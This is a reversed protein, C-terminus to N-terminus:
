HSEMPVRYVCIVNGDRDGAYLYGTQCEEFCSIPIAWPKDLAVKKLNAPEARVGAAEMAKIYPGFTATNCFLGICGAPPNAMLDPLERVTIAILDPVM